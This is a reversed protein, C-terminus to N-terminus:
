RYVFFSFSVGIFGSVPGFVVAFLVPFSLLTAVFV